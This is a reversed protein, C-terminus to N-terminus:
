LSRRRSRHRPAPGSRCGPSPGPGRRGPGWGPDRRPGRSLACGRGNCAARAPSGAGRAPVAHRRPAPLSLGSPRAGGGPSRAVRSLRGGLRSLPLRSQSDPPALHGNRDTPQRRSRFGRVQWRMLRDGRLAPVFDSFVKARPRTSRGTAATGPEGGSAFDKVSDPGLQCQKWSTSVEECFTSRDRGTGSPM